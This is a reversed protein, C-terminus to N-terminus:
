NVNSFQSYKSKFRMLDSGYSYSNLKMLRQKELADMLQFDDQKVQELSTKSINFKINKEILNNNKDNDIQNNKNQSM